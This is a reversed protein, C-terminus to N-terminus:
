FIEHEYSHYAKKVASSFDLYADSESNFLSKFFCNFFLRQDNGIKKADRRVKDLYKLLLYIDEEIDSFKISDILGDVDKFSTIIRNDCLKAIACGYGTMSQSKNFLQVANHAYPTALLDCQEIDFDGSYRKYIQTAFHHYSRLYDDFLDISNDITAIRELNKVSDLIDTRDLTLYDKQLYSTFGEIIDRFRYEGLKTPVAADNESLLSVGQIQTAKKYDSYIIEIQHRISMPTQGTNLTLMRYLLGLKSLGVYIEVRIKKKLIEEKKTEDTIEEVLEKITYSRQLGDLIKLKNRNNQITALLDDSLLQNGYALVIPPMICGMMLDKKLLSYISSSNKVRKRQYENDNLCDKVLNYYDIISIEIMYDKANVRKDFIPEMM